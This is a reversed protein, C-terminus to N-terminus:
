EGGELKEIRAKLEKIAELLVPVLKDYAVMKYTEGTDPDQISESTAEPLAAEVEHALVGVDKKGAKGILKSRNNWTFRVGNLADVISLADTINSVDDKLRADSYAVVNGAATMEGNTTNVYWQWPQAYWGGVGFVGDSRLHMKVAWSGDCVFAMGAVAGDGGGGNNYVYMAAAGNNWYTNSPMRASVFAGDSNVLQTQYGNSAVRIYMSNQTQDHWLVGREANTTTERFWVHRNASAARVNLDSAATVAGTTTVGGLGVSLGNNMDVFGTDRYIALPTNLYTGADSYRYVAFHSGANGGTETSGDGIALGWRPTLTNNSGFILAGNGAAKALTIAPATKSILLDGTLTLAGASTAALTTAGSATLTNLSTAGSVTLSSATTAALTSAGSVTLTGASVAGTVTAGGSLTLNAAGVDGSATLSVVSAAGSLTLTAGTIDTSAALSGTVSAGSASVQLVTSGNVAVKVGGDRFLGTDTDAAFSYSPASVTGDSNLIRASSNFALSGLMTDGTKIVYAGGDIVAIDGWALTMMDGPIIPKYSEIRNAAPNYRIAGPLPQPSDTDSSSPLIVHRGLLVLEGGSKRLDFVHAM